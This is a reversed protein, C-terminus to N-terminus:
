FHVYKRWMVLLLLWVSAGSLVVEFIRSDNPHAVWSPTILPFEGPLVQQSQTIAPCAHFSNASLFIHGFGRFPNETWIKSFKGRFTLDVQWMWARIHHWFTRLSFTKSATIGEEWARFYSIWIASHCIWFFFFFFRRLWIREKSFFFYIWTCWKRSWLLSSKFDYSRRDCNLRLFCEIILTANKKNHDNLSALSRWEFFNLFSFFLFQHCQFHVSENSLFAKVWPLSSSCDAVKRV